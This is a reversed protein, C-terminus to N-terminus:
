ILGAKIIALYNLVGIEGVNQFIRGGSPLEAKGGEKRKREGRKKMEVM